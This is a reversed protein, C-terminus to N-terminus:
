LQKNSRLTSSFTTELLSTLYQPTVVAPILEWIIIFYFWISNEKEIIIVISMHVAMNIDKSWLTVCLGTLTVQDNRTLHQPTDM